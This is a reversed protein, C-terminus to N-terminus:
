NARALKLAETWARHKLDAGAGLMMSEFRRDDRAGASQRLKSTAFDVWTMEPGNEAM